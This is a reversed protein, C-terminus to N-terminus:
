CSAKRQALPTKSEYSNTQYGVMRPNQMITTHKASVAELTTVIIILLTHAMSQIYRLYPVNSRFAFGLQVYTVATIYLMRIM